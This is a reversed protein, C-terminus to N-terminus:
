FRYWTDIVMILVILFFGSNCIAQFIGADLTLCLPLCKYGWTVLGLVPSGLNGCAFIQYLVIPLRLWMVGVTLDQSLYITMKGCWTWLCKNWLIPLLWRFKYNPSLDSFSVGNRSLPLKWTKFVPSRKTTNFCKKGKTWLAPIWSTDSHSAQNCLM